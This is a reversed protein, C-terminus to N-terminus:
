CWCTKVCLCVASIASQQTKIIEIKQEPCKVQEISGRATVGRVGLQQPLVVGLKVSVNNAFYRLYIM